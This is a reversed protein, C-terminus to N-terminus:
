EEYRNTVVVCKEEVHIKVNNIYYYIEKEEAIESIKKQLWRIDEPNDSIVIIQKLVEPHFIFQLRFRHGKYKLEKTELFNRDIRKIMGLFYVRIKWMPIDWINEKTLSLIKDM